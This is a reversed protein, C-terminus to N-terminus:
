SSDRPVIDMWESWYVFTPRWRRLHVIEHDEIVNMVMREDMEVRAIGQLLEEIGRDIESRKITLKLLKQLFITM